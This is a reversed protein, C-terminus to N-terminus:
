GKVKDNMFYHRVRQSRLVGIVLGIWLLTLCLMFPWNRHANPDRWLFLREVWYITPYYVAAIWLLKPTWGARSALGWLTPLGVLGSVFGAFVFYWFLGLSLNSQILHQDALARGFRLWGLTTWLVFVWFMLSLFIPRRPRVRETSDRRTSKQVTM